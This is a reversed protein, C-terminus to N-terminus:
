ERSTCSLASFIQNKWGPYSILEFSLYLKKNYVSEIYAFIFKYFKRVTLAISLCGNKLSKFGIQYGTRENSM